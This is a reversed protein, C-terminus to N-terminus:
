ENQNFTINPKGITLDSITNFKLKNNRDNISFLKNKLFRQHSTPSKGAFDKNIRLITSPTGLVIM